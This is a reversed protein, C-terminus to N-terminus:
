EPNFVIQIGSVNGQWSGRLSIIKTAKKISAFDFLEEVSISFRGSYRYAVALSNAIQYDADSALFNASTIQPREGDTQAVDVDEIQNLKKTIEDQVLKKKAAAEEAAKKKDNEDTQSTGSESIWENWVADAASMGNPDLFRIPSNVAYNYPSWKYYKEALPDVSHWGGLAADYFRAGYDYWDLGLEDNLEKGNYKYKNEPSLVSSNVGQFTMGFPYYHDEQLKEVLTNKTFLICNNGLHYKLFYEYKLNAGDKILRGEDFLAYALGTGEYIFSGKYTTEGTKVNSEYV